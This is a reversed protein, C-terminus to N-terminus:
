RARLTAHPWSDVVTESDSSESALALDAVFGPTAPGIVIGALLYGVLPPM